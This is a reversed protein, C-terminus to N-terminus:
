DLNPHVIVEVRVDGGLGTFASPPREGPQPPRPPPNFPGGEGFFAVFLDAVFPPIDVVRAPQGNMPPIAMQGPGLTIAPQPVGNLVFTVTVTGESCVVGQGPLVAWKTGRIGAVGQAHKVEYNSAKSLKKVNGLLGGKKLNLQTDHVNQGDVKKFKTKDFTVETDGIISLESEAFTAKVSSDKGITTVTAGEKLVDGKALQKGNATATGKVEVITIDSTAYGDGPAAAQATSTVVMAALALLSASIKFFSFPKM